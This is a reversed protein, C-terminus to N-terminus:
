QRLCCGLSVDQWTYNHLDRSVKGYSSKYWNHRMGLYQSDVLMRDNKYLKWIKWRWDCMWGYNLARSDANEWTFSKQFIHLSFCIKQLVLPFQDLNFCRNKTKLLSNYIRLTRWEREIAVVNCTIIKPKNQNYAFRPNLQHTQKFDIKRCWICM